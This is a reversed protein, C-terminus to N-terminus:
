FWDELLLSEIRSFEGTNHSVLTVDERRAIAAIMLDFVGIMKGKKRLNEKLRAFEQAAKRHFPLIQLNAFFKQLIELNKTIEKSHYAGYYLEAATISTTALESVKRSAIRDRIRASTGNLFYICTNTDLIYIM